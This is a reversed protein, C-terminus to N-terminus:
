HTEWTSPIENGTHVHTDNKKFEDGLWDSFWLSISDDAESDM